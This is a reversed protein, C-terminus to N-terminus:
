RTCFQTASFILIKSQSEFSDLYNSCCCVSPAQKGCVGWLFDEFHSLALTASQAVLGDSPEVQNVWACAIRGPWGVTARDLDKLPGALRDKHGAAPPVDDEVEICGDGNGLVKAATCIERDDPVFGYTASWFQRAAPEGGQFLM